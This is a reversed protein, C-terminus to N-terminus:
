GLQGASLSILSPALLFDVESVYGAACNCDASFVKATKLLRLGRVTFETKACQHCYRPNSSFTDVRIM